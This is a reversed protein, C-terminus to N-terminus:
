REAKFGYSVCIREEFHLPNLAQLGLQRFAMGRTIRCDM